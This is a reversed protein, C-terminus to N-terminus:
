NNSQNNGIKFDILKNFDIENIHKELIKNIVQNITVDQINAILKIKTHTTEPLKLNVKKINTENEM